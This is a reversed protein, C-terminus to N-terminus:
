APRRPHDTPPQRMSRDGTKRGITRAIANLLTEASYPKPVFECVGAVRTAAIASPGTMGSSGIIKIEPNIAKLAVVMAPGDMIPMAMDTLVVAIDDRQLAYISVAAAGNTAVAVRYGFKELTSKAVELIPEEDDVVLILENHGVPLGEAKADESEAHATAPNAPLYIRFTSGKGPSSSLNIFGEHSQVIGLSTSLGLGTGKGLDKTTFFPEFIKDRVEPPIGTGTDAVSVELYPGPMAGRNMSAFTEDVMENKIRLTIKGGHPMADRANLCLNLLVQHIQNPDGTVMWPVREHKLDFKVNKPFTDKVIQEVERAVQLIQVQVRKGEAGRGFALVHRVLQAGREANQELLVLLRRGGDDTVKMKLLTIAMLIPALVNNLDHAIGGALTGLSELRQNRLALVEARKKETIDACISLQAKPAGKEDRILSRRVDLFIESGNRDHVRFEGHWAGKELTEKAAQIIQAHDEARHLETSLKGVAEKASWGLAQETAGNMYVIRGDMGLLLILDHAQDLMTAQESVKQMVRRHETIDRSIGVLGIVTGGADRIPVKTTSVWRESGDPGPVREEIDALTRGASMVEEDSALFKAALDRPYFDFDTKGITEELTAVKLQNLHTQNNILHRSARDRVYVHDPIIDIVTRLLNNEIALTKQTQLLLEDGKEPTARPQAGSLTASLTAEAEALRRSLEAIRAKLAIENFPTPTGM